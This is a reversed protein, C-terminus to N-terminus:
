RSPDSLPGFIPFTSTLPPQLAPFGPPQRARLGVTSRTAFTQLRLTILNVLSEAQNCVQHNM